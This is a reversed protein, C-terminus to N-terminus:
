FTTTLRMFLSRPPGIANGSFLGAFDLVDLTNTLNAGDLQFTSTWRDSRHLLVAASADVKFSPDIRSRTFNLRNLVEPGYQALVTAPDGVFKFPLGSNFEVGGAIWLRPNFQYRLRGRFTNRQDQSIPFHGSLQSAAATADDGLFFGGTVSFWANGVSYSYSGFGTLGHWNPVEVKSEIGYVIGKRFAIPFSITTSEIQDDDSFDNLDRRFYNADIRIRKAFEKSVGGEFYDGVSPKVPLRLFNEPDLSEVETSSSLLINESSPTQFVRDYAFHLILGANAFYHSISIRPQLAQHNLLLQYHDWRLGAAVTWNRSRFLDQFFVSQEFDLRSGAFSFTPPTDDDFRSLDTILYNFNEHLFTNDSDLGAKWEHAGRDLTATFKFYAERFNNHQFIEIPISNENSNFNSSNDRGMADFNLSAHDSLLHQYTAVGMTEANDGTQLQGAAQQIMENPIDFRSFEHRIALSLSDKPTQAREYRGAFDGITGTNTFNQPVVPNLYHDTRNSSASGGFTDKGRSYQAQGSAGASAFSGGTLVLQGHLGSQVDQVTNVEIVGGMKRGYEAPIGATYIALSQVGDAEIEPGFSPSRNDTLPIGDIVFQTQYESGRPHLVANGEFLWGPQDNVLDQVSRGPVSGLRDRILDKGVVDISGAQDVALLTDTSSVRVSETLPALKMRVAFNTPISSRIEISSQVSAFGSSRIELRYLGFPMRNLDLLGSSRTSLQRSYHNGQSIIQVAAIIGHGTADTVVLHLAGESAQGYALSALSVLLALITKLFNFAV